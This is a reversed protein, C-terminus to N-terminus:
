QRYAMIILMELLLAQFIESQAIFRYLIHTEGESILSLFYQGKEHYLKNKYIYRYITSYYLKALKAVDYLSVRNSDTRGPGSDDIISM